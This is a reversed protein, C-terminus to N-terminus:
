RWPDSVLISTAEAEIKLGLIIRKKKKELTVFRGISISSREYSRSLRGGSLLALYEDM